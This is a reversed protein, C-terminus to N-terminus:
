LLRRRCVPNMKWCSPAGACFRAAGCLACFQSRALQRSKMMFLGTAELNAL